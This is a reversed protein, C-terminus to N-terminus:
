LADRSTVTADPDLGGDLADDVVRETGGSVGEEDASMDPDAVQGPTASEIPADAEVPADTPFDESTRKDDM